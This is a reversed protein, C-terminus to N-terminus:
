KISTLESKGVFKRKYINRPLARDDCFKKEM